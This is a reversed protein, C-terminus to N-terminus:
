SRSHCAALAARGAETLAHLQNGDPGTDVRIWGHRECTRVTTESATTLWAAQAGGYSALAELFLVQAVSPLPAKAADPRKTGRGGIRDLLNWAEELLLAVLTPCHHAAKFVCLTEHSYAWAAEPGKAAVERLNHIRDALKIETSEASAFIRQYYEDEPLDPRKTLSDVLRAAEPGATAAITSLAVDSDEVVDHLWAAALMHPRREGAQELIHVVAAPHTIYPANTGFRTQGAHARVALARAALVLDSETRPGSSGSAMEGNGRYPTMGADGGAM